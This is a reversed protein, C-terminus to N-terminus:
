LLLWTEREIEREREGERQRESERERGLEGCPCSHRDTQTLKFVSKSKNRWIRLGNRLL